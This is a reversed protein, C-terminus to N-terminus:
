FIMRILRSAILSIWRIDARENPLLELVKRSDDFSDRKNIEAKDAKDAREVSFQLEIARRQASLFSECQNCFILWVSCQRLYSGTALHRSKRLAVECFSWFMTQHPSYRFCSSLSESLRNGSAWHNPPLAERADRCAVAGSTVADTKWFGEGKGGPNADGKKSNLLAGFPQESEHGRRRGLQVCKSRVTGVDNPHERARSWILRV